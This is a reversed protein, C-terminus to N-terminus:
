PRERSCGDAVRLHCTDSRPRSGCNAPGAPPERDAISPPRLVRESRIATRRHRDLQRSPTAVGRDVHAALEVPDSAPVARLTPQAVPDWRRAATLILPLAVQRARAIIADRQTRDLGLVFAALATAALAASGIVILLLWSDVDTDTGAALAGAFLAATVLAPRITGRLQGLPSLGLTRCVAWPYAIGIILRGIIFGLTLGTIANDFTNIFLM